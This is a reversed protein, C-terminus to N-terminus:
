ALIFPLCFEPPFILTLYFLGASVMFRRFTVLHCVIYLPHTFINDSDFFSFDTAGLWYIVAIFPLSGERMISALYCLQFFTKNHFELKNFESSNQWRNFLCYCQLHSRQRKLVTYIDSSIFYLRLRFVNRFLVCDHQFM